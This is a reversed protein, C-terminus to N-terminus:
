RILSISPNRWDTPTMKSDSIAKTLADAAPSEFERALWREFGDSDEGDIRSTYLHARKALGRASKADWIPVNQHSVLTRYTYIKGDPRAFGRLYMQPVFHNEGRFEESGQHM